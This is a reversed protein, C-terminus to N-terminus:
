SNFAILQTVGLVGLSGGLAINLDGSQVFISSASITNFFNATGTASFFASGDASTVTAGDVTLDGNGAVLSLSTGATVNTVTLSGDALLQLNGVIDIDDLTADGSFEGFVDTVHVEGQSQVDPGFFAFTGITITGLQNDDSFSILGQAVADLTGPINIAGGHDANIEITNGSQLTVNGTSSLTHANDALLTIDGVGDVLDDILALDGGTFSVNGGTAGVLISGDAEGFVPSTFSAGSPAGINISGSGQSGGIPGVGNFGFGSSLFIQGNQVVAGAAAADFGISGGLLMTLANNKPVAVM